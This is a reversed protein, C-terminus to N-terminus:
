YCIWGLLITSSSCCLTSSLHTCLFRDFQLKYNSETKFEIEAHRGFHAKIFKFCLEASGKCSSLSKFTKAWKVSIHILSLTNWPARLISGWEQAECPDCTLHNEYTKQLEPISLITSTHPASVVMSKSESHCTWSRYFGMFNRQVM